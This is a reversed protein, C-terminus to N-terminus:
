AARHINSNEHEYFYSIRDIVRQPKQTTAANDLWILPKGNVQESLIPFDKRISAADFQRTSSSIQPIGAGLGSRPAGIPELAPSVFGAPVRLEPPAAMPGYDLFYFPSVEATSLRDQAFLPESPMEVFSRDPVFGAADGRQPAYALAQQAGSIPSSASPPYG